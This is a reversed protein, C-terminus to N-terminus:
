VVSKRLILFSNKAINKSSKDQYIIWRALTLCLEGVILLFILIIIQIDIKKALSKLHLFSFYIQHFLIYWKPLNIVQRKTFVKKGDKLCL